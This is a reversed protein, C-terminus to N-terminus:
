AYPVVEGLGIKYLNYRSGSLHLCSSGGTLLFNLANSSILLVFQYGQMFENMIEELKGKGKVIKSIRAWSELTDNAVEQLIELPDRSEYKARTHIYNHTDGALDEKYFRCPFWYDIV